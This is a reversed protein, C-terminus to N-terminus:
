KASSACPRPCGILAPAAGPEVPPRRAMAWTRTRPPRRRAATRAACSTASRSCSPSWWKPWRRPKTTSPRPSPRSASRGAGTSSSSPSSSAAISATSARRRRRGGPRARRGGGRRDGRWRGQGARLRAGPAAAPQRHAADRAFAARDGGGRRARDAAGLISASRMIISRPGEGLLFGPSPLDRLARAAALLAHRAAHHGRGPHLAPAPHPHDPRQPGQGDRLQGLLGGDGSLAAGGGRAATPPDRRHVARRRPSIPSSAWSTPAASSPPAPPSRSPRAWRTPWSPPWRRRASAPPGPSCCTISRSGASGRRRWRCACARSRRAAPGRVRRPAASSAAARGADGGAAGSPEHGAGRGDHAERDPDAGRPGAISRTSCSRPRRSGPGGRLAGAILQAAESPRHGLQKVLVDFVM